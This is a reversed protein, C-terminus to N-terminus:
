IEKKGEGVPKAVEDEERQVTVKVKPVIDHALRVPVDYSGLQHIPEAMEITKKDIEYGCAKSLAGAVDASTISGYLREKEGAHAKLLIETGEIKTALERMEGEFKAIRRERQKLQAEVVNAYKSDALVALKRPLLYNRGYGDAVEKTQGAKAVNSVDELFTVKM